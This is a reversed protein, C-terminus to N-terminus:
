SLRYFVLNNSFTTKSSSFKSSSISFKTALLLETSYFYPRLNLSCLFSSLLNAALLFFSQNAESESEVVMAM